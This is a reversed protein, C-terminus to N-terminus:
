FASGILILFISFHRGAVVYKHIKWNIMLNSWGSIIAPCPVQPKSIASCTCSISATTIGTPPPPSSAPQATASLVNCGSIFIITHSSINSIKYFNYEAQCMVYISRVYTAPRDNSLDTGLCKPFDYLLTRPWDKM